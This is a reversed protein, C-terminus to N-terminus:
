SLIWAVLATWGIISVVYAVILQPWTLPREPRSIPAEVRERQWETLHDHKM